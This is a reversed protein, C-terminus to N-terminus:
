EPVHSLDKYYKEILYRYTVPIKEDTASYLMKESQNVEAEMRLKSELEQVPVLLKNWLDPQNLFDEIEQQTLLRHVSRANIFWGEDRAWPQLLGRADRQIAEFDRFIQDLGRTM